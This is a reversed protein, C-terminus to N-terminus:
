ALEPVNPAIRVRPEVPAAPVGVVTTGPPVDMLVVSAAGVKANAGIRVNGLIKAGVCILVGRDIKPHRDGTDKGTGGLTVDQFITCDDGVVATEGIVVGTGHDIFLGSGIRAGPHIDIAYIEAVRGQLFLALAHRGACWLHHGLRHAQLAQFGKQNLFINICGKAAPDRALAAQLDLLLCQSIAPAEALCGQFLDTLLRASLDPAFLKHGLVHALAAEISAHRLINAHLYSALLPEATAHSRAQECLQPWLDATGNAIAMPKAVSWLRSGQTCNLTNESPLSADM